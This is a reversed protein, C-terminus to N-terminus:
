FILAYTSAQINVLYWNTIECSIEEDVEFYIEQCKWLRIYKTGFDYM